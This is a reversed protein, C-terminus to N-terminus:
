RQGSRTTIYKDNMGVAVNENKRYDVIGDMLTKSMSDTDVQTLMNM